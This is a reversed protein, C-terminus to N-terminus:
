LFSSDGCCQHALHLVLASTSTQLWNDLSIALVIFSHAVCFLLYEICVFCDKIPLRDWKLSEYSFLLLWHWAEFILLVPHSRQWSTTWPSFITSSYTSMSYKEMYIDPICRRILLVHLVSASLPCTYRVLMFSYISGRLDRYFSLVLPFVPSFFFGRRTPSSTPTRDGCSPLQRLSSFCKLSLSFCSIQPLRFLILVILDKGWGYVQSLSTPRRSPVTAPLHLM